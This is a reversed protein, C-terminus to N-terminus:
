LQSNKYIKYFLFFFAYSNNQNATIGGLIVKGERENGKKKKKATLFMAYTIIDDHIHM